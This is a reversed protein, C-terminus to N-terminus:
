KVDFPYYSVYSYNKMTFFAFYKVTSPPPYAASSDIVIYQGTNPAAIRGSKLVPFKANQYVELQNVTSVDPVDLTITFRPRAVGNITESSVEVKTVTPLPGSATDNVSDKKCSLLSIIM